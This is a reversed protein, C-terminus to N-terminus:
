RGTRTIQQIKKRMKAFFWRHPYDATRTIQWFNRYDQKTRLLLYQLHKKSGTTVSLSIFVFFIVGSNVKM